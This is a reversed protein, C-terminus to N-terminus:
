VVRKKDFVAIAMACYPCVERVAAFSGGGLVKADRVAEAYKRCVERHIEMKLGPCLVMESMLHGLKKHLREFTREPNSYKGDKVLSLTTKSVGIERAVASLSGLSEIAKTLLEEDRM